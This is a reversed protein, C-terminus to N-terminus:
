EVKSWILDKGDLEENVERRWIRTVQILPTKLSLVGKLAMRWLLHIWRLTDEFTVDRCLETQSRM